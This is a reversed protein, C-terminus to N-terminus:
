DENAPTVDLTGEMGRERHSKFFLLQKDCFFTYSGPARPTIEVTATEGAGVDVDVALGAQGAEISFNHPALFDTNALELRVTEGSQVTIRDPVFRYDGMEIPISRPTEAAWSEGTTLSFGGYLLCAVTLM